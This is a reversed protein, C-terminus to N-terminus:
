LVGLLRGTNESKIFGQISGMIAKAEKTKGTKFLAYAAYYLAIHPQWRAKLLVESHQLVGKFDGIESGLQMSAYEYLTGDLKKVNYLASRAAATDGFKLYALFLHYASTKADSLPTGSRLMSSCKALLLKAKSTLESAHYNHEANEEMFGERDYSIRSLEYNSYAIYTLAEAYLLMPDKATNFLQEYIKISEEYEHLRNHTSIERVADVRNHDAAQPTTSSAIGECNTCIAVGGFSINEAGCYMCTFKGAVKPMKKSYKVFDFM